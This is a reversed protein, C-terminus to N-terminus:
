LSWFTLVPTFSFRLQWEPGFADPSQVYYYAEFNLKTPISWLDFTKAFGGGLPLLLRNDDAGEWDYRIDPNSVVHWGNGLRYAFILRVSTESTDYDVPTQVRDVDAVSVLHTAWAGFMGWRYNRGIAFQPGLLHQDREISGDKSSPLVGAIGAMWFRGNDGNEGFSLDYSIDDLHGHGDVWSGDYSLTDARQRILFEGHERGDSAWTPSGFSLPLAARLVIRKGSSLTFPLVTSITYSAHTEDSAGPLDGQYTKYDIVNGINALRGIPNMLELTTDSTGSESPRRSHDDAQSLVPTLVALCLVVRRFLRLLGPM